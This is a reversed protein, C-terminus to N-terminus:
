RKAVRRKAPKAPARKAKPTAPPRGNRGTPLEKLDDPLKWYPTPLPSGDEASEVKVAGPIRGNVVLKRIRTTSKDFRKAAETITM